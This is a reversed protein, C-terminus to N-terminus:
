AQLVFSNYLRTCHVTALVQLRRYLLRPTHKMAVLALGEYAAKYAECVLVAPNKAQIDAFRHLVRAESRLRAAVFLYLRKLCM